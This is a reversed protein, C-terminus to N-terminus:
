SRISSFACVGLDTAVEFDPFPQSRRAPLSKFTLRNNMLDEPTGWVSLVMDSSRFVEASGAIASRLEEAGPSGKSLDSIAEQKYQAPALITVNNRKVYDSLKQYAESIREHKAMSSRHSQILEPYDIVLLSSGNSKVSTDIEEILTELMFPRDIFDVNAYELNSALERASAHELERLEPSPYRNYLITSDDVGTKLKRLDTEGRNYMEDFHIARILATFASKGGEAAWVSVPLKSNVITNYAIRACFRTKGGKTPAAVTILDSSYIGGLHQNLEDIDGFDGIKYIESTDETQALVERMSSFGTGESASLLGSIRASERNVYSSSDEFGSLTGQGELLIDMADSYMKRGALTEFDLLYTEFTLKFQDDTVEPSRELISFKKVISGIFETEQEITANKRLSTFDTSQKLIKRNNQLFLKIFNSNIKIDRNRFHYLIKYIIYNEEQFVEPRASTFLYSQRERWNPTNGLIGGLLLDAGEELREQPTLSSGDGGKSSEHAEIKATADIDIGFDLVGELAVTVPVAEFEKEVEPASVGESAESPSPLPTVVGSVPATLGDPAVSGEKPDGAGSVPSVGASAFTSGEQASPTEGETGYFDFSDTM